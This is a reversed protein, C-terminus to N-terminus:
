RVAFTALLPVLISGFAVVAILSQAWNRLVIALLWPGAIWYLQATAFGPRYAQADIVWCTHSIANGIAGYIVYFLVPVLLFGIRRYVVALCALTFVAYSAMNFSVFLDNSFAAGGYLEPFFTKFDTVFEEAFHLFQIALAVFFPAVFTQADPLEVKGLYMWLFIAWAFAIGPVFTVILSLGSSLNVYLTGMAIAIATGILFEAQTLPRSTQTDSM